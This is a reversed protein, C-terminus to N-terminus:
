GVVFLIIFPILLWWFFTVEPGFIAQLASGTAIVDSIPLVQFSFAVVLITSALALTIKAFLDEFYKQAYQRPMIKFFLGTTVVTVIVFVSLQLLLSKQPDVADALLKQMGPIKDYFLLALYLGLTLNTLAQKGKIVGVIFFIGFLVIFYTIDSFFALPAFSEM